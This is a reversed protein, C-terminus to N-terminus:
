RWDHGPRDDVHAVLTVHGGEPATNPSFEDFLACIAEVLAINRIEQSAGINYHEGPLGQELLCWLAQVHM